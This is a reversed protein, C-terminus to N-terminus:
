KRKKIGLEYETMVKFEVGREGCWQRAAEWKDQNRQFTMQEELHRMKTKHTMRKPTVPPITEKYPKVEILVNGISGDRKRLKVMFDTFYRRQKNDVSSWYPIVVEESNWRLVSPNNDLHKMLKREWLSRFVINSADGVYKHPNIPTYKGKYSKRGM